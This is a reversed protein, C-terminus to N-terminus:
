ISFLYGLSHALTLYPSSIVRHIDIQTERKEPFVLERRLRSFMTTAMTSVKDFCFFVFLFSFDETKGRGCLIPLNNRRYFIKYVQVSSYLCMKNM